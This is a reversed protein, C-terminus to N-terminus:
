LEGFGEESFSRLFTVFGIPLMELGRLLTGMLALVHSVNLWFPLRVVFKVNPSEPPVNWLLLLFLAVFAFPFRFPCMKCVGAIGEGVRIKRKRYKKQKETEAKTQKTRVVQMSHVYKM